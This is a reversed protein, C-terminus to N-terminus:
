NPIIKVDGEFKHYKRFEISNKTYIRDADRGLLVEAHVPLLYREGGITVWDYDVANESLTIPFGAPIDDNSEEIRLVRKTETDIWVSGSYGAIVSKGSNKDTIRSTSDARKVKFEFIVTDRGNLRDHGKERFEADSKPLFLAALISGFEGTSTSGGLSEYTSSTPKGDITLIKFQEGKDAQYTLEIELKDQVQWNRSASHEFYRTVIQNVVFNPLENAFDLAYYRAQEILPMRALAALDARRRAEPSDPENSDPEPQEMRPRNAEEQAHKIANLLFSRAGARRFEDLVKDDVAFDVGRRQVEVAIDGQSVEHNPSEAQRILSIIESKSFPKPAQGPRASSGGTWLGLVFVVALIYKRNMLRVMTYNFLHESEM